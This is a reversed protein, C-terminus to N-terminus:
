SARHGQGDVGGEVAAVDADDGDALVAAFDVEGYLAVAIGREVLPEEEAEGARAAAGGAQADHVGAAGGKRSAPLAIPDAGAAIADRPPHDRRAVGVAHEGEVPRSLAVEGEECQECGVRHLAVVVEDGSDGGAGADDVALEAAGELALRDVRQRDARAALRYPEDRALM